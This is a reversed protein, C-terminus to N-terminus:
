YPTGSARLLSGLVECLVVFPFASFLEYFSPCLCPKVLIEPLQGDSNCAESTSEFKATAVNKRGDLRLNIQRPIDSTKNSSITKCYLMLGTTFVSGNGIELNGLAQNASTLGWVRVNTTLSVM